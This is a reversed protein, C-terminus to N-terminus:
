SLYGQIRQEYGCRVWFEYVQELISSTALKSSLPRWYDVESRCADCTFDTWAEERGSKMSCAAFAPRPPRALKNAGDREFQHTIVM